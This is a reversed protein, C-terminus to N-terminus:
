LGIIYEVVGDIEKVWGLGTQCFVPFLDSLYLGVCM